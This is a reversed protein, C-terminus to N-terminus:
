DHKRRRARVGIKEHRILGCLQAFRKQECAVGADDRLYRLLEASRGGVKKWQRRILDKIKEDDVRLRRIKEPKQHQALSEEVVNKSKELKFWQAQLQEVFHRMARQPFDAQTGAYGPVAELRDDYPMAVKALNTPLVNHGARSTFVRLRAIQDASCLSLDESVMELYTSPLAVLVVAHPYRTLLDRFGRGRCLHRWWDAVTSGHQDLVRRFPSRPGAVTLDYPAIEDRADLLGYGASVVHLPARLENAVWHADSVSRGVYLRGAPTLSAGGRLRRRWELVTERM